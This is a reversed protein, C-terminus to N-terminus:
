APRVLKAIRATSEDGSASLGSGSMQLFFTIADSWVFLKVIRRSPIILCADVATTDLFSAMKKLIVYDM